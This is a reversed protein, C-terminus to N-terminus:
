SAEQANMAPVTSKEKIEQNCGYGPRHGYRSVRGQCRGTLDYFTESLDGLEHPRAYRGCLPCKRGGETALFQMMTIQSVTM